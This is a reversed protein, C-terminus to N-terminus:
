PSDEARDRQGCYRCAGAIQSTTPRTKGPIGARKAPMAWWRPSWIPSRAITHDLGIGSAHHMLEEIADDKPQFNLRDAGTLRGPM